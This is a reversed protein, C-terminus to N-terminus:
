PVVGAVTQRGDGPRGHRLRPRGVGAHQSAHDPRAAPHRHHGVGGDVRRDAQRGFGPASVLLLALVLQPFALLANFTPSLVADTKGRFYGAALGLLGGVLLGIAIAGVAIVLTWKAGNILRSFLDRGVEDYGLIAAGSPGKRANIPDAATPDVLFLPAFISALTIVALWVISLWAGIGLPARKDTPILEDPGSATMSDFASVPRAPAAAEELLQETSTPTKPM